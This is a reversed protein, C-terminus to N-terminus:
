KAKLYERQKKITNRGAQINQRHRITGETYYGLTRIQKAKLPLKNNYVWNWTNDFFKKHKAKFDKYFENRIKILLMLDDIQPHNDLDKKSIGFRKVWYGILQEQELATKYQIHAHETKNMTKETQWKVYNNIWSCYYRM